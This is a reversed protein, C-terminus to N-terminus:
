PKMQAFAAVCFGLWISFAMCNKCTCGQFELLQLAQGQQEASRAVLGVDDVTTIYTCWSHGPFRCSCTACVPAIRWPRCLLSHTPWCVFVWRQLKKIQTKLEGEFKEKQAPTSSEHVKQWIEEFVEQGEQVSKLVRDIEGQLKKASSMAALPHSERGLRLWGM